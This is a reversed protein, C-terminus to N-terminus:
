KDTYDLDVFQNLFWNATKLFYAGKDLDGAWQAGESENKLELRRDVYSAAAFFTPIQENQSFWRRMYSVFYCSWIKRSLSALNFKPLQTKRQKECICLTACTLPTIRCNQRKNPWWLEYLNMKTWNWKDIKRERVPRYQATTKSPRLNTSQEVWSIM